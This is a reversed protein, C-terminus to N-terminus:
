GISSEMAQYGAQQLARAVRGPDDPCLAIM